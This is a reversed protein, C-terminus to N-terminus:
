NKLHRPVKNTLQDQLKLGEHEEKIFWDHSEQTFMSVEAKFYDINDYEDKDFVMKTTYPKM